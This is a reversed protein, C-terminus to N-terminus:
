GHNPTPTSFHPVRGSSLSSEVFYMVIIEAPIAKRLSFLHLAASAALKSVLVPNGAM